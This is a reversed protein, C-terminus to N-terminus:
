EPIPLGLLTDLRESAMFLDWRADGPLIGYRDMLKKAKMAKLQDPAGAM